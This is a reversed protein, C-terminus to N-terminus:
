IDSVDSHVYSLFSRVYMRLSYREAPVDYIVSRNVREPSFAFVSFNKIKSGSISLYACHSNSLFDVTLSGVDLHTHAGFMASCHGAM